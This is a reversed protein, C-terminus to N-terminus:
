ESQVAQNVDSNPESTELSAKEPEPPLSFYFCAGRGLWGEAWVQGEHRRIIRQVLALGIGSGQFEQSTHLRQFPVFLKAAYTMDFGV